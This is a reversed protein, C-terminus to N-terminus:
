QALSGMFAVPDDTPVALSPVMQYLLLVSIQHKLDNNILDANYSTGRRELDLGMQSLVGQIEQFFFPCNQDCSWISSDGSMPVHGGLLTESAAM